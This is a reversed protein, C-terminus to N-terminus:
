PQYNRVAFARTWGTCAAARVLLFHDGEPTDEARLVTVPEGEKAWCAVVAPNWDAQVDQGAEKTLPNNILMVPQAPTPTRRPGDGIGSPARLRPDNLRAAVFVLLCVLVLAAVGALMISRESM